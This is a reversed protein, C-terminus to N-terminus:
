HEADSKDYRMRVFKKITGNLSLSYMDLAPHDLLSSYNTEVSQSSEAVEHTHVHKWFCLTHLKRCHFVIDGNPLIFIDQIKLFVPFLLHQKLHRVCFYVKKKNKM